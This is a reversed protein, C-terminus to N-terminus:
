LKNMFIKNLFGGCPTDKIFFMSINENRFREINFPEIIAITGIFVGIDGGKEIM